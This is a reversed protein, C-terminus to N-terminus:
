KGEILREPVNIGKEKFYKLAGPHLPVQCRVVNEPAMIKVAKHVKKFEDLNEFTTKTLQYVLDDSLDKHVMYAYWDTLTHVDKELYKYTGKKIVGTSYQPFAKSVRDLQEKTLHLSRVPVSAGLQAFAPRPAGGMFIAGDILGDKLSRMSDGQGLYRYNPKVGLFDCIRKVVVAPTGGAPGVSINKGGMDMFDKIGSKALVIGDLYAVHVAFMARSLVYKKDAWGKGAFGEWALSQTVVGVQAENREILKLNAVPGGTAEIIVKKGMKRDIILSWGSMIKYNAGGLSASGGVLKNPDAAQVTGAVFPLATLMMIVVILSVIFSMRKQM